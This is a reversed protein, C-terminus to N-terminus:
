LRSGITADIFAFTQELAALSAARTSAPTAGIFSHDVDPIVQLTSRVGQAQLAAHFQRSQEVSVTADREGHILLVPPDKRDIHSRPSALAVVDAGCVSSACGLYRGATSNSSARQAANTGANLVLAFDFIGYWAVVGQVCDESPTSAQPALATVGCSLGALAALQGGASGGWIVARTPDIGYLQENARLWGLANKVDHIAAPFAAEGSLRYEISAVVYGKHALSALVGPWNAFAGSHRTHGGQWGGGHIYVVLPRGTTARAKPRYLDLRLPRFGPQTSYVLDPLSEVDDFSVVAKPYRDELVPKSETPVVSSATDSSAFVLSCLMSSMSVGLLLGLRKALM